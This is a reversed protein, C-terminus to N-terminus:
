SSSLDPEPNRACTHRLQSSAAADAGWRTRTAVSRVPCTM